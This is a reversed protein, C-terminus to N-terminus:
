WWERIRRVREFRMNVRFRHLNMVAFVVGGVDGIHVLCEFRRRVVGGFGSFLQDRADITQGLVDAAGDPVIAAAVRVMRHKPLQKRWLAAALRFSFERFRDGLREAVELLELRLEFRSASSSEAAPPRPQHDVAALWSLGNIPLATAPM